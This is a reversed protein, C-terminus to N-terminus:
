SISAPMLRLFGCYKSLSVRSVTPSPYSSAVPWSLARPMVDQAEQWGGGTCAGLLKRCQQVGLGQSM